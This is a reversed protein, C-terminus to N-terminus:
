NSIQSSRSFMIDLLYKGDEAKMFVQGDYKEAIYVISRVGFGHRTKDKKHTVPLGDQFQVERSCRNEVHVIVMEGRRTLHLSIFREEEKEEQVCELANDLCRM